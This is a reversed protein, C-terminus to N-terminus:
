YYVRGWAGPLFPILVRTILHGTVMSLFSATVSVLSVLVLSTWPLRIRRLGYSLGVGLGDLSVALALLIMALFM